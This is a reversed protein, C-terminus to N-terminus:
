KSSENSGPGEDSGEQKTATNLAVGLSTGIAVGIPLWLGINDTSVGVATGISVGLAVGIALKSGDSESKNQEETTGM